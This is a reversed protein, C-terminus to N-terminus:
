RRRRRKRKFKRLESRSIEGARVLANVCRRSIRRGNARMCSRLTTTGPSHASCLRRWDNKCAREVAKSYARADVSQVALGTAAVAFFTMVFVCGVFDRWHACRIM